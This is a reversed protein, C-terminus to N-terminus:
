EEQPEPEIWEENAIEYSGCVPCYVQGNEDRLLANSFGLWGCFNCSVEKIEM